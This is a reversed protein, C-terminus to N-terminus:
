KNKPKIERKIREVEWSPVKVKKQQVIYAISDARISDGINRYAYYLGELPAFRVPCMYAAERYHCIAEEYKRLERCIDGTLLELNYKSWQKRCAQAIYWAKGTYGAQFLEAAYNYLFEPNNRYHAYLREYQPMMERSKGKMAKWSSQGWEKEYPIERFTFFGFLIATCWLIAITAVNAKKNRIPNLGLGKGAMIICLVLVVWTIPYKFPYSFASFFFLPILAYGTCRLDQEQKRWLIYVLAVLLALLAMPACIGYNVWLYAFENLPHWTEDALIAAECDPHIEFYAAQRKMYERNFGDPGYGMWPKEQILSWTRTLIFLRGSTSGFKHSFLLIGSIIVVLVTIGSKWVKKTKASLWLFILTYITLCLMGTRSRTLLLTLAVMCNAVIYFTKERKHMEKNKYAFCSFPLSVCLFFALGAPNDFTGAVGLHWMHSNAFANILAYLSELTAVICFVDCWIKFHPIDNGKKILWIGTTASLAGAIIFTGVWKPTLMRDYFMNMVPFGCAICLAAYLLTYFNKMRMRRLLLSLCIVVMAFPFCSNNRIKFGLCVRTVSFLM